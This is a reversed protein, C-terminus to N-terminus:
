VGLITFCGYEKFVSELWIDAEKYLAQSYADKNRVINGIRKWDEISVEIEGFPSYAPIVEMIADVFDDNMFDDHLLLSDDKWFSTGDWKGKYFEHYCTGKRENNNVFYM